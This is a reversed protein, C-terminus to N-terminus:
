YETVRISPSETPADRDKKLLLEIIGRRYRARHQSREVAVGLDVKREFAGSRCERKVMQYYTQRSPIEGRVWLTRGEVRLVVQSLDQIGPLEIRVLVDDNGHYVDVPPGGEKEAPFTEGMDAWFDEGLFQRALRSWKSFQQHPDM